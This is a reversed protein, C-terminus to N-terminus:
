SLRRQRFRRGSRPESSGSLALVQGSTFTGSGSNILIEIQKGEVAALDVKGDGNFDGAVFSSALAKTTPPTGMRFTGNGNNLLVTSVTGTGPAILLDPWGDGNLDVSIIPGNSPIAYSTYTGFGGSHNNFYVDVTGVSGGYPENVAAMDPYGDRDFDALASSLAGQGDTPYTTFNYTTQSFMPAAWFLLSVVFSTLRM